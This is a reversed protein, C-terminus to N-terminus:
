RIEKKAFRGVSILGAEVGFARRSAGTLPADQRDSDMEIIAATSMIGGPNRCRGRAGDGVDGRAPQLLDPGCVQDANQEFHNIAVFLWTLLFMALQARQYSM